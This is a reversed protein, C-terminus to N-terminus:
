SLVVQVTEPTQQRLVIRKGGVLQNLLEDEYHRITLLTLNKMLQADFFESATLAFKEVKEPHDDVVCLLSIATNQTLNPKFKLEEFIRYVEATLHEGVFSFDKSSLQVLVQ